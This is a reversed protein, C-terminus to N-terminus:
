RVPHGTLRTAEVYKELGEECTYVVFKELEAAGMSKLLGKIDMQGVRLIYIPRGERDHANEGLWGGPFYKLAVDPAHWSTRLRDIGNQKRWMLSKCLMKTTPEIDFNRARLFRVLHADNPIQM